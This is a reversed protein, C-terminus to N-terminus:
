PLILITRRSVTALRTQDRVTVTFQAQTRHKARGARIVISATRGRLTRAFAYSSHGGVLLRAAFRCPGIAALPCAVRVRIRKKAILHTRGTRIRVVPAKPPLAVSITATGIGSADLGDSASYTFSDPGTYGPSPRYLVSGTANAVGITGHTPKSLIAVAIKDGNPDSCALVVSRGRNAVTSARVNLCGPESQRGLVAIGDSAASAAFVVGGDASTALGRPDDLARAARCDASATTHVCGAPGTTPTLISTLPDVQFTVVSSGRAAAVWAVLGDPRFIAARPGLLLAWVPCAATAVSGAFCSARALAGTAPDRRLSSVADDDAATVLVTAGDHSVAVASAGALGGIATCGTQADDSLCGQGAPLQALAGSVPDRQFATLTGGASTAYLSTGDPSLALASPASLGAVPTCGSQGARVCGAVGALPQLRGTAADRTFVVIANDAAGAVYVFRGDPSIVIADAGGIGSALDCGPTSAATTCGAIGATQVLSGNPQRTFTAVSGTTAAAVYVHLGDPSVAVASAGTLGRVTGCGTQAISVLCGASLNLQGLLGTHADVSFSTVSAPAAAVAYLTAGDPSLAVARADDLGRAGTCGLQTLQSVCGGSGPLEVLAGPRSIASSAALPALVCLLLALLVLRRRM